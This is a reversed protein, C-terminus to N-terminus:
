GMEKRANQWILSSKKTRGKSSRGSRTVCAPSTGRYSSSTRRWRSSPNGCSTLAMCEKLLTLGIGHCQSITIQSSQSSDFITHCYLLKIKVWMWPDFDNGITDSYPIIVTNTFSCQVKKWKQEEIRQRKEEELSPHLTDEIDEVSDAAAPLAM